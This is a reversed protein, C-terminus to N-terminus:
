AQTDPFWDGLVQEATFGGRELRARIADAPERHQELDAAALKAAAHVQKQILGDVERRLSPSDELLLDIQSRAENISARWGARAEASPSITLKLLHRMIRTIQSTLERRDSKGLSEIEEALNEWDLPLNSAKARRLAAAQEQTWLFFDHDYLEGTKPMADWTYLQQQLWAAASAKDGRIYRFSGGHSLGLSSFPHPLAIVLIM